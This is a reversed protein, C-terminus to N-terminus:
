EKLKSQKLFPIFSVLDNIKIKKNIQKWPNKPHNITLLPSILLTSTLWKLNDICKVVAKIIRDKINHCIKFHLFKNYIFTM